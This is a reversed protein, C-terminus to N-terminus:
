REMGRRKQGPKTLGKSFPSPPPLHPAKTSFSYNVKLPFHSSTLSCKRQQVLGLTTWDGRSSRISVPATHADQRGTRHAEEHAEHVANALAFTVTRIIRINKICHRLQCSCLVYLNVCFTRSKEGGGEGMLIM